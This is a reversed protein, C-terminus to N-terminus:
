YPFIKSSIYPEWNSPPPLEIKPLQRHTIGRHHLAFGTKLPSAKQSGYLTDGDLPIGCFSAHARIQHMIGSKMQAKYLFMNQHQGLMQFSTYAPYWKGRCRYNKNKQVLMKRKNKPHHGIPLDCQLTDKSFESSLFLYNKLLEKSVFLERLKHFYSINKAIYIAGSTPIDLRHLIGCSFGEIQINQLSPHYKLIEYQVCPASPDSHLPFVSIGAKKHWVLVHEDEYLKM